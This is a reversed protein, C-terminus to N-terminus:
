QANKFITKSNKIYILRAKMLAMHQADSFGIHWISYIVYMHWLESLRFAGKTIFIIM